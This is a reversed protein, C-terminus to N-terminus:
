AAIKAVYDDLKAIAQAWGQAAGEEGAPLGAHTVTMKTRGDLDELVVTVVTVLPPSGAPMGYAEPPLLNGHEDAPSDTYALRQNSLLETFEGTTWVQITGDPGQMEMGILRKGGVRVDMEAVPITFGQPGYWQKLHAPETWMQWVREAPANIIREVVIADKSDTM